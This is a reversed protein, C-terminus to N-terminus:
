LCTSSCTSALLKLSLAGCCGGLSGLASQLVANCATKEGEVVVVAAERIGDVFVVLVVCVARSSAYRCFDVVGRRWVGYM